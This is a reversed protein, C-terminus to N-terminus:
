EGNGEERTKRAEMDQVTPGGCISAVSTGVLANNALVDRSLM